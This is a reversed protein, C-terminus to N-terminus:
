NLKLLKKIDKIGEEPTDFKIEADYHKAQSIEYASKALREQIAKSTETGRRELRAKLVKFSPPQFFISIVKIFPDNKLNKRINKAGDVDVIALAPKEGNLATKITEKKTGYYKGSFGEIYEVFENNKIGERFKDVTTFFYSVGDIEGERKARTTHTVIRNFLNMLPDMVSNKGVGSPGGILLLYKNNELVKAHTDNRLIQGFTVPNSIRNSYDNNIKQVQM